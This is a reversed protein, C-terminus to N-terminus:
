IELQYVRIGCSVADGYIYAINLCNDIRRTATDLVVIYNRLLLTATYFSTGNDPKCYSRSM